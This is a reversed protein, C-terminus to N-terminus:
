LTATAVPTVSGTGTSAVAHGGALAIGDLGWTSTNNPHGIFIEQTGGAGGTYLNVGAYGHFFDFGGLALNDFSLTLEQGAGLASTFGDFLVRASGSTDLSNEASITIATGATGTWAGGGIDPTSGVILTGPAQSFTDLYVTTTQSFASKSAFLLGTACVTALLTRICSFRVGRKISTPNKM